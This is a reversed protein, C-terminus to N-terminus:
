IVSKNNKYIIFNIIIKLIQDRIYCKKVMAENKNQRKKKKVIVYGTSLVMFM